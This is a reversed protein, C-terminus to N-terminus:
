GSDEGRRVVGSRGRRTAGAPPSQKGPLEVFRLLVLLYALAEV